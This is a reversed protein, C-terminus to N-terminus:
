GCGVKYIDNDNNFGSFISFMKFNMHGLFTYYFDLYKGLINISLLTKFFTVFIVFNVKLIMKSNKQRQNFLLYADIKANQEIYIHPLM